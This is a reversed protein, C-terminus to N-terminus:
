AGCPQRLRRVLSIASNESHFACYYVGRAKMARCPLRKTVSQQTERTQPHIYMYMYINHIYKHIYEIIHMYTYINVYKYKHM